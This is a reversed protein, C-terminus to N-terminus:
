SFFSSISPMQTILAREWKRLITRRWRGSPNQKALALALAQLYEPDNKRLWNITRIVQSKTHFPCFMCNGSHGFLEYCPNLEIGHDRIYSLIQKKSWSLIPMISITDTERFYDRQKLNKRFRSTRTVGSVNIRFIKGERLLKKIVKIKYHNLCWRSFGILPIGWKKLDDFFSRNASAIILKNSIGLDRAINIVYHENLYYTNEAVKIFLINFDEHSINQLVWLLAATSDKGGSWLITFKRSSLYEKIDIRM